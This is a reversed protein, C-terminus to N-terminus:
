SRLVYFITYDLNFILIFKKFDLHFVDSDKIDLFIKLVEVLYIRVDYKFIGRLLIFIKIQFITGVLNATYIPIM